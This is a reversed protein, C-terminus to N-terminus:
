TDEHRHLEVDHRHHGHLSLLQRGFTQHLIADTLM